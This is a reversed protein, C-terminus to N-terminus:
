WEMNNDFERLRTLLKRAVPVDKTYGSTVTSLACEVRTFLEVVERVQSDKLVAQMHAYVGLVEVPVSDPDAAIDEFSYNNMFGLGPGVHMFSMKDISDMNVIAMISGCYAPDSKKPSGVTYHQMCVPHPTAGFSSFSVNTPLDVDIRRDVSSNYVDLVLRRIGTLTHSLVPRSSVWNVGNAYERITAIQKETFM